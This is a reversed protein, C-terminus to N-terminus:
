HLTVLQVARVYLSIIVVKVVQVNCAGSFSPMSVVEVVALM